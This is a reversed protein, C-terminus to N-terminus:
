RCINETGLSTAIPLNWQGYSYEAGVEQKDGENAMDTETIVMSLRFKFLLNYFLIYDVIAELRQLRLQLKWKEPMDARVLGGGSLIIVTKNNLRFQSVITPQTNFAGFKVCINNLIYSFFTFIIGLQIKGSFGM